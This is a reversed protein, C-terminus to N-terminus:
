NPKDPRAPEINIVASPTQKPANWPLTFYFTSGEGPKSSVWIKGGHAEVTKKCVALGVGSGAYDTRGHLRRFIEFIKETQGTEIGIGNDRISFLWMPGQRECHIHVRPPESRNYKIANGILNQFLQGIQVADAHITPLPECTIEAKKEQIMLRLNKLTQEVVRNCHIAKDRQLQLGAHAYDLLNDILRKMREASDVMFNIFDDADNGLKGQYRSSLLTAFSTITRLPEKLDHSAISAFRELELNSRKLDNALKELSEQTQKQGSIEAIMTGTGVINGNM